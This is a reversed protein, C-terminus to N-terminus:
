EVMTVQMRRMDSRGQDDVVRVAFEGAMPAQWFLTERPSVRGIYADDVFWYLAHASADATANFAIPATSGEKLRMAYTSSRLPSTIRPAAGEM